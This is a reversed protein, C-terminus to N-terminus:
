RFLSLAKERLVSSAQLCFFPIMRQFVFALCKGHVKGGKGDYRVLDDRKMSNMAEAFLVALIRM